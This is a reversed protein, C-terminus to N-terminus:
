EITARAMETKEKLETARRMMAQVIAVKQGYGSGDWSTAQLTMNYMGLADIERARAEKAMEVTYHWLANNGQSLIQAPPKLHGAANPGVWLFPVNRSSADALTIWEDMSATASPWSLSTSLSLSHVVPVPKYSDPNAALITTLEQRLSDPAPSGSIPLFLHPTRDCYFPSQHGGEAHSEQVDQSNKINYASCEPRTVQNDCRCTTRDNENLKWQKLGGTAINERLLMNFGAYVNQLLGDGIFVIADFRDLVMCVEATSYWRYHCGAPYFPADFGHRGGGSLGELLTARNRCYLNSKPGDEGSRSPPMYLDSSAIGCDQHGEFRDFYDNIQDHSFPIKDDQKAPTSFPNFTWIILVASLVLLVMMRTSFLGSRVHRISNKPREM